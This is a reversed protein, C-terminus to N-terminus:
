IVVDVFGTTLYEDLFNATEKPVWLLMVMNLFNIQEYCRRSHSKQYTIIPFFSVSAMSQICVSDIYSVGRCNGNNASQAPTM